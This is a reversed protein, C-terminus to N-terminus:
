EIWSPVTFFHEADYVEYLKGIDLLKNTELDHFVDILYQYDIEYINKMDYACQRYYAGQNIYNHKYVILPSYDNNYAVIEYKPMLNENLYFVKQIFDRNFRMKFKEDSTKYFEYNIQEVEVRLKFCLIVDKFKDYFIFTFKDYRLLAYLADNYILKLDLKFQGQFELTINKANKQVFQFSFKNEDSSTEKWLQKFSNHKKLNIDLLCNYELSDILRLSQPFVFETVLSPCNEQKFPQNRIKTNNKKCGFFFYFSITIVIISISKM